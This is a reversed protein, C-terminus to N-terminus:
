RRMHQQAGGIEHNSHRSDPDVKLCCISQACFIEGCFLCLMADSVDKGTTPCKRKMTEEMLTDYNKPLGILEYIVPHGVSIDAAPVPTRQSTHGPYAPRWAAQHHMWGRIMSQITSM